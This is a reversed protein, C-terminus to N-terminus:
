ERNWDANADIAQSQDGSTADASPTKGTNSSTSTSTRSSRISAATETGEAATWSETTPNRDRQQAEDLAPKGDPVQHRPTSASEAGVRDPYSIHTQRQVQQQQNRNRRYFESRRFAELRELREHQRPYEPLCFVCPYAAYATLNLWQPNFAFDQEGFERRAMHDLYIQRTEVILFVNPILLVYVVAIALIALIVTSAIALGQDLRVYMLLILSLVLLWAALVTFFIALTIARQVFDRQRMVFRVSLVEDEAYRDPPVNIYYRGYTMPMITTTGPEGDIRILKINDSVDWSVRQAASLLAIDLISVGFAIASCFLSWHFLVEEYTSPEPPTSVSVGIFASALIFANITRLNEIWVPWGEQYVRSIEDVRATKMQFSRPPRPRPHSQSQETPDM